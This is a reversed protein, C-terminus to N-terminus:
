RTTQAVSPSCPASATRPSSRTLTAGAACGRRTLGRPAPSAKAAANRSASASPGGLQAIRERAPAGGHERELRVRTTGFPMLSVRTALSLMRLRDAVAASIPVRSFMVVAYFDGSFLVGGFGLASVIGHKEVFDQAPM